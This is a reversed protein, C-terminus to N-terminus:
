REWMTIRFWGINAITQLFCGVWVLWFLGMGYLVAVAPGMLWEGSGIAAGLAIMAPGMIKTIM